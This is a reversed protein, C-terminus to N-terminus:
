STMGMVMKLPWCLSSSAASKESTLTRTGAKRASHANGELAGPGCNKVHRLNHAEAQLMQADGSVGCGWHLLIICMCICHHLCFTNQIPEPWTPTKQLPCALQRHPVLRLKAAARRGPPLAPSTRYLLSSRSCVQQLHQKTAIM